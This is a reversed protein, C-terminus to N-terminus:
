YPVIINFRAALEDIEKRIAQDNRLTWESILYYIKQAAWQTALSAPAKEADRLDMDLVLEQTNGSADRGKVQIGINNVSSPVKGYVTLPHGRFLHPLERPYVDEQLNGTIRCALDAVIIDSLGGAYGTFSVATDDLTPEHLSFGRNKYSLYDMLFLNTNEGASFSFICAASNNENTVRRIFENNALEHGTTTRGDSLMFILYPREKNTRQVTVYPAVGAYVDTKGESELDSIFKHAYRINTNSVPVFNDFLPKPKERFAVINYRDEPQLYDLVMEMGRRFHWLKERGISGSSDVLFLIDKPINPLSDAQMDAAIEVAFYGEHSDPDRYLRVNVRLMPDLVLPAETLTNPGGEDQNGSATGPGTVIPLPPLETFHRKPAGLRMGLGIEKPNGMGTGGPGSSAISPTKPGKLAQREMEPILHRNSMSREVPLDKTRIAVIEPLPSTKPAIGLTDNIPDRPKQEEAKKLLNKGLGTLRPKLLPKPKELLKQDRFLNVLKKEQELLLREKLKDPTKVKHEVLTKLDIAKVNVPRDKRAVSSPKAEFPSIQIRAAVQWFAIHLLISAVVALGVYFFTHSDDRM